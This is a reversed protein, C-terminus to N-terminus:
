QKKLEKTLCKYDIQGKEVGEKGKREERGRRQEKKKMKEEM